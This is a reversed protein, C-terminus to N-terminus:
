GEVFEQEVFDVLIDELVLVDDDDFFLVGFPSYPGKESYLEDLRAFYEEDTLITARGDILKFGGPGTVSDIFNGSDIGFEAGGAGPDEGRVRQTFTQRTGLSAVAYPTVQAAFEIRDRTKQRWHEYFQRYVDAALTQQLREVADEFGPASASFEFDAM